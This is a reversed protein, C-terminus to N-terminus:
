RAQPNLKLRWAAAEEPKGWKVYLDTVRQIAARLRLDDLPTRKASLVTLGSASDQLLPEAKAFEKQGTLSEGLLSEAEYRNLGNVEFIDYSALSSRLTQEADAYKQELLQCEGLRKLRLALKPENSPRNGQDEKLSLAILPEADAYRKEQMFFMEVQGVLNLTAKYDEIALVRQKAVAHELLPVGKDRSGDDIYALALNCDAKLTLPNDPGSEASQREASQELLPVAKAVQGVDQYAIALRSLTMTIDRSRKGPNERLQDLEQELFPIANSMQGTDTYANTLNNLYIISEDFVVGTVSKQKEVIQKFLPIAKALQGDARYAVALMNMARLTEDANPGSKASREKLLQEFMPLAQKLQGSAQYVEALNNRYLLTIPKDGRGQAEQTAVARELLPVAKEPKGSMKYAMALNNISSVTEAHNPGLLAERRNAVLGCLSVGQYLQGDALYAGGLIGDCNLTEPNDPGLTHDLGVRSKILLSIARKPYGLNMLARALNGQLRAVELPDGNAGEELLESAKDLRDGLEASLQPGIMKASAPNLDEFVSALIENARRTQHLSKEAAQRQALENGQAQRLQALARQSHLIGAILVAILCVTALLLAATLAAVAPSRHGWRWLREVRGVPRAAITEGRQFQRLDEAVEAASSYRRSPEKRLCKLCITELDRPVKPNLRSPSVTEEAIVQRLTELNSEARFPPRGTLLEYLIAGLAYVDVLASARGPAGVAQEPAMYSPTGITAGSVTLGASEAQRALGFDTIKPTGEATLLINAPKLDRHVIGSQHAAHVADAVVVLLQAAREITQPANGLTDALSGGELFEMTFYPLGDLDGVDYVQVINPHHLGAVAEAERLFRELEEARAYPGMLLMKLAVTRRLRLHWAKYVVGLGGRGLIGQTDYGRICPLDGTQPRFSSDDDTPWAGPFLEDVEAQVARLKRWNDRVQQLLDPFAQCVEEPTGGSDQLQELLEVVRPDDTM